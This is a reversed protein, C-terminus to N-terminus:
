NSTPPGSGQGIDFMKEKTRSWSTIGVIGGMAIHYLGANQLTLPQWATIPLHVLALAIPWLIPAIIFDFICTAMYVWGMMPRWKNDIWNENTPLQNDM